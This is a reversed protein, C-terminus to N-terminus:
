FFISEGESPINVNTFGYQNLFDRFNLQVEYEGHVLYIAEANRQNKILDYLEFQDAHASFTDMIHIKAGVEIKENHIYVHDPKHRLRHGLTGEACYGAILLTNAKPPLQYKLHEVIRGSQMMGSAAIVICPQNKASLFTALGKQRIYKLKSFGFPNDDSQLYQILESDFCEPHMRYIETASWALPSDVYIPFSPLRGENELQDILYVIEQTRGLSFAPILLIGENAICTQFIIEYLTEKNDSLSDHHKNGYTSECILIDVLPMPKPDKLIPRNSKGLDGTFGIMKKTNDSKLIELCISASGLIHGADQFFIQIGPFILIWTDYPIGVFLQMAALVDQETYILNEGEIAESKQIRAADLLMIQALNRTAHTCFIKGTFGKTVLAPIRGIHDIHAHTVLLADIESPNFYDWKSNKEHDSNDGQFLGCDILIQKSDETKIWYSSGTVTRAAGCFKLEM